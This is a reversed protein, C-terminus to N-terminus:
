QDQAWFDFFNYWQNPYKKCIQELKMAYRSIEETLAADRTKRPLIIQDSFKEFLIRFKKGEKMCHLTYVPCRLLSALIIPGQSFPADEGLFSVYSLRKQGEIPTRDGAIVVWEGRALREQLEIATAPGMDSVQVVDISAEPNYNSLLQNFKAAHQTHAFVTIKIDIHRKSLARCVEINGLHSTLILIGKDQNAIREFEAKNPIILDSFKIDGMWASFKDLAMRGFSLTHRWLQLLGVKDAGGEAAYMKQWYQKSARRQRGGTLFFYFLIPHMIWWCARYGLFKYIIALFRLGWAMGREDFTAWQSAIQPKKPRNRLISPLRFLMNFVLRTHMKTIRINDAVMDFNSINDEPYTVKVPTMLTPTGRWFLRVMIETDFDMRKGVTEEDVVALSQKLPYVRYGCMSDKIQFSLTEVWVWIHTLWRAIKRSKPITADYVPQGSVLATPHAKALGLLRPLASADHQGDADVQVAHSYGAEYAMRFGTIVACGKGQNDDLRKVTVNHDPDHLAAIVRETPESSGDDIIFVPLGKDRLGQVVDKIVLYHNHSPVIACFKVTM